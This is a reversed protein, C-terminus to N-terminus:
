RHGLSLWNAAHMLLWYGIGLSIKVKQIPKTYMTLTRIGWGGSNNDVVVLQATKGKLDSVDWEKRSMTETANGTATREVKGKIELNVCCPVPVVDWAHNGGGILFNM